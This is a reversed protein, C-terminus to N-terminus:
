SELAPIAPAASTGLTEFARIVGWKRKDDMPGSWTRVESLLYPIANTGITKIAQEAAQRIKFEKDPDFDKIWASLTKGQYVPDDAARVTEGVAAHSLLFLAFVWHMVPHTLILMNKM